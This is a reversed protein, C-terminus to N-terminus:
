LVLAFDRGKHIEQENLPSCSLCHSMIKLLEVFRGKSLRFLYRGFPKRRLWWGV